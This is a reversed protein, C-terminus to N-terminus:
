TAPTEVVKLAVITVWYNGQESEIAVHKVSGAANSTFNRSVSPLEMKVKFGAQDLQLGIEGGMLNALEGVVDSMAETDAAIPVGVLKRAVASAADTPLHLSIALQLDGSVNISGVVGTGTPADTSSAPKPVAGCISGMTSTVAAVVANEVAEPVGTENESVSTM